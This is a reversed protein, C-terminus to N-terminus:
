RIRELSASPQRVRLFEIRAVFNIPESYRRFQLESAVCATMTQGKEGPDPM